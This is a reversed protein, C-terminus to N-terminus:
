ALVVPDLILADILAYNAGTEVARAVRVRAGTGPDAVVTGDAALTLYTGDNVTGVTANCKVRAVQGAMAVSNHGGATTGHVIVGLPIDTAANVISVKGSAPEVFYGEKDSLDSDSIRPLVAVRTRPNSM